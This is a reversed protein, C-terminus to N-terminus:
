EEKRRKIWGKVAEGALWIVAVAVSAMALHALSHGETGPLVAHGPHALAPTAFLIALTTLKKM